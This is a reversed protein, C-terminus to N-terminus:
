GDRGVAPREWEGEAEGGHRVATGGALPLDQRFSDFGLGGLVPVGGSRGAAFRQRKEKMSVVSGGEDGSKSGGETGTGTITSDGSEAGSDGRREGGEGGEFRGVAGVAKVDAGGAAGGVVEPREDKEPLSSHGASSDPPPFQAAVGCLQALHRVASFISPHCPLTTPPLPPHCHPHFAPRGAYSVHLSLVARAFIFRLLFLRLFPDLLLRAWALPLTPCAALSSGWQSLLMALQREWGMYQEKPIDPLPVATLRCFAQLPATLFLTFLNGGALHTATALSVAPPAASTSSSSPPESTPAASPATSPISATATNVAAPPEAVASASQSSPPVTGDANTAAPTTATTSSPQSPRPATSIDPQLRPSLLMACPEGRERGGLWQFAASNDSDVILVLPRRTFPLIDAPLLCCMSAAEGEGRMRVWVGGGAVGGDGERGHAQEGEHAGGGGESDVAGSCASSGARGDARSGAGGEAAEATAAAAAPAGAPAGAAEPAVVASSAAAAPAAPPQSAAPHSAPPTATPALSGAASLYLLLAADAPLEEVATALVMLLHPVSPRHLVYKHPNPPLSPDVVNEEAGGVLRPGEGGGGGAGGTATFGHTAVGGQKSPLFFGSPLWEVAQLMRFADLTVESLKVQVCPPHLPSPPLTLLGLAAVRRGAAHPLRGTHGREAESHHGGGEKGGSGEEGVGGGPRVELPYFSTLVVEQLALARPAAPLMLAAVPPLAGPPPDLLVSYRLPRPCDSPWDARLFRVAEHVVGKWEAADAAQSPPTPPAPALFPPLTTVPRCYDTRPTAPLCLSPLHTCRLPLRPPLPVQFSRSYDDVAMRLQWLLHRLMDRRGLLVCVVTFRALWRLQKHAVAAESCAAERFYERRHIADYFIFAELLYSADGTRLYYNYYLQGIRSAIEGIEWRKLGMEVLRARHEQQFRWLRSYVSFAKHFHAEWRQRGYLPLERLRAFKGYAKELLARYQEAVAASSTSAGASTAPASTAPASPAPASTAPATAVASSSHPMAAAPAPASPAELPAPRAPPDTSPASPSETSDPAHATQADDDPKAPHPPSSHPMAAFPNITRTPTFEPLQIAPEAAANGNFPDRLFDASPWPSQSDDPSRQEAANGADLPLVSPLSDMTAARETSARRLGRGSSARAGQPREADDEM